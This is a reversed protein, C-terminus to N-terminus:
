NGRQESRGSRRRAFPPVADLGGAVGEPRQRVRDNEDAVAAAAQEQRGYGVRDRRGDSSQDEDVGANRRACALRRENGWGDEIM